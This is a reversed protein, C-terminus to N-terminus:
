LKKFYMLFIRYMCIKNCDAIFMRLISISRSHNRLSKVSLQFRGTTM